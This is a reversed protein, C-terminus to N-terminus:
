RFVRLTKNLVGKFNLSMVNKSYKLNKHTWLNLVM